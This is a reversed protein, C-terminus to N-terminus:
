RMAGSDDADDIHAETYPDDTMLWSCRSCTTGGDRVAVLCADHVQSPHILEPSRPALSLATRADEIRHVTALRETERLEARMARETKLYRPKFPASPAPVPSSGAVELSQAVRAGDPRSAERLEREASQAVGAGEAREQARVQEVLAVIESRKPTDTLEVAIRLALLDLSDQTLGDLKIASEHCLLSLATRATRAAAEREVRDRMELLEDENM